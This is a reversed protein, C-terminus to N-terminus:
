HGVEQTDPQGEVNLRPAASLLKRTYEHEPSQFIRQVDAREVIQGLYMVAVDQCIHRVVALDHSIFVLGFGLQAQLDALVNLVTAQVSVDLAAVPEDALILAPEIALARAIAVRQKQGGSLKAPRADLTVEPLKVMAMLERCREPIQPRTRLRHHRLLETLMQRVTMAPNLSSGPDQFVMQIQRRAATDRFPGLPMGRFLIEGSAPRTLGIIARALSSKGCGSEGVIGLTQGEDVQISVEDV